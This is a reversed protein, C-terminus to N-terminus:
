LCIDRLSSMMALAMRKMGSDPYGDGMTNDKFNPHVYNTDPSDYAVRWNLNNIGSTRALDIFPLAYHESVLKMADAYDFVGLGRSNKQYFNPSTADFGSLYSTCMLLQGSVVIRANPCITQLYEITSRMEPIFDQAKIVSQFDDPSNYEACASESITVFPDDMSGIIIDCDVFDTANLLRDAVTEGIHSPDESGITTHHFAFGGFIMGGCGYNVHTMGMYYDIVKQWHDRQTISDGLSAYKRGYLYNKESKNVKDGVGDVKPVVASLVVEGDKQISEDSALYGIYGVASAFTKRVPYGPTLAFSAIDTKNADSVYITISNNGIVGQTDDISFKIENQAEIVAPFAYRSYNVRGDVLTITNTINRGEVGYIEKNISVIEADISNVSNVVENVANVLSSKNDTDLEELNGIKTDIGKTYGKRWIEASGQMASVNDDNKDFSVIIYSTAVNPTFVRALLTSTIAWRDMIRGDANYEVIRTQLNAVTATVSVEQGQAVPIRQSICYNSDDQIQGNYDLAKGEIYSLKGNIQTDIESVKGELESLKEAVGSSKVLNNSGSTPEDDVGQWDKKNTSFTQAM